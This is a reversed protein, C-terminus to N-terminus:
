IASSFIVLVPLRALCQQIIRFAKLLCLPEVDASNACNVGNVLSCHWLRICSKTSFSYILRPLFLIHLTLPVSQQVQHIKYPFSDFIFM